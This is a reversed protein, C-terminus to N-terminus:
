DIPPAVSFKVKKTSAHEPDTKKCKLLTSSFPASPGGFAAFQSEEQTQSEPFSLSEAQAQSHSQRLGSAPQQLEPSPATAETM